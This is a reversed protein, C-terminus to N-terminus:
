PPSNICEGEVCFLPSCCDLHNRCEGCQGNICAQNRCDRCTTCETTVTSGPCDEATTLVSKDYHIDVTNSTNLRRLFLSGFVELPGSTVLEARPAYVNAWIVSDASLQITGTGGMYIRVSSPNERAGIQLKRASVLHGELFFDLEGGPEVTITFEDQLNLEGAIFLATRGTISIHLPGSGQVRSLYIRGCDISVTTTGSFGDLLTHDIGALVNDNESEHRLVYGAIDVLQEPECDCPPDVTVPARILEAYTYQGSVNVTTGAPITLTSSVVLDRMDVPGGIRASYGVSLDTTGNMPGQDHFDGGVTVPLSSTVGGSSGVWLSGSVSLGANAQIRGNVGVSGGFQGQMYPGVESDFADVSVRTSATHEECLCLAYRFTREALHESCVLTSDGVLIPPGQGDCYDTGADVPSSVDAAQHGGDLIMADRTTGAEMILVRADEFLTSADLVITAVVSEQHCGMLLMLGATAFSRNM